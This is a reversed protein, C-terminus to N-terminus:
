IKRAVKLANRSAKALAKHTKEEKLQAPTKQVKTGKRKAEVLATKKAINAKERRVANRIRVRDFPNLRHMIGKNVLANKHTFPRNTKIIPRLASQIETSNIIRGLDANSILPRPLRYGAKEVSGVKYSGYLKNLNEFADRTWIIFRGIHGGPATQLLNLRTVNCLEVGPLNRFAKEMPTNEKLYVILPGKAQLWRRNRSKGKGNRLRISNKSKEVDEDAGFAKLLALAKSIKDISDITQNDIVLPVEALQDIKHGRALLLAPVASAALSSVLAHRKQTVNVKRHWRRWIKTPAFMRGKRSM